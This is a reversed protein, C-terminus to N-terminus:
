KEEKPYVKVIVQCKGIDTKVKVFCKLYKPPAQPKIQTYNAAPNEVFLIKWETHRLRQAIQSSLERRL